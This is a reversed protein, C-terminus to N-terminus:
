YDHHRSLPSAPVMSFFGPINGHMIDRHEAGRTQHDLVYILRHIDSMVKFLDYKKRNLYQKKLHLVHMDYHKEFPPYQRIKKPLRVMINHHTGTKFHAFLTEIGSYQM